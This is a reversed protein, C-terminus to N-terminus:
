FPTDELWRSLVTGDGLVEVQPGAAPLRRMLVLMLEAAPGRVAVDAKAHGREVALGSATRRLLWEGAGNLGADTAHLHLSQGEDHLPLPNDPDSTLLMLWEDIGDAALDAPIDARRGTALESDATHVATEHAIRRAWFSAPGLGTLTWVEAQGAETLTEVLRAAGSTLWGPRAAADDPIRGDPVDRFAVAEASRRTVIETAWRQGRGVHTALQRLTWDPCTPIHTTEDEAAVVDALRATFDRIGAYFREDAVM